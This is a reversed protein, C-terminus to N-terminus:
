RLDRYSILEIGCRELLTRSRPSTLIELERVRSELLRTGAGQLQADNYGPHCVFEWTGQPLNGILSEFLDQDLSGTAVIGITGDTTRLGAAEVQRRFRSALLHLTRVQFYRKWLAPRHKLLGFAAPEFPNRIAAIGCARAARLVPATVAPFVHSHKHSDLHSVKVGSAQIKRIQAATEEEVQAPDLKSPAPAFEALKGRFRSGDRGLLSPIRAPATVPIGDVLVVHCGIALTPTKKALAIAEDFAQTNAMLTASTILGQQHGEMIARNVGSTLGLDDANIILRRM